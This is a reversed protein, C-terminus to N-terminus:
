RFTENFLDNFDIFHISYTVVQKVRNRERANRKSVSPTQLKKVSHHHKQFAMGTRPDIGISTPSSSM